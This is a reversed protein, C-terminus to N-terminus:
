IYINYYCGNRLLTSAGLFPFFFQALTLLTYGITGFAATVMEQLYIVCCHNAVPSLYWSMM